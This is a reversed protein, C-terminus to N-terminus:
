RCPTAEGFTRRQPQPLQRTMRRVDIISLQTMAAIQREVYGDAWLRAVNPDISPRPPHTLRQAHIEARLTDPSM